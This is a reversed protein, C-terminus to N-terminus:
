AGAGSRTRRRADRFRGDALQQAALEDLAFVVGLAASESRAFPGVHGCSRDRGIRAASRSPKRTSISAARSRASMTSSRGGSLTMEIGCRSWSRRTTRPARRPRAPARSRAARRPRANRRAAAVDLAEELSRGLVDRLEGPVDGGGRAARLRHDGGIAAVHKPTPKSIESAQSKRMTESVQRYASGSCFSPWIGPEPPEARSCFITPMVRVLSMTIRERRMGPAAPAVFPADRGLHTASSAAPLAVSASTSSSRPTRAAPAACPSSAASRCRPRAARSRSRARLGNSCGGASLGVIEALADLREVLLALRRKM